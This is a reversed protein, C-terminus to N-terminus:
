EPKQDLLHRKIWTTAVAFIQEQSEYGSFVQDGGKIDIRTYAPKGYAARWRASSGILLDFEDSLLFRDGMLFLIRGRFQELGLLIAETFAGAAAGPATNTVARPGPAFRAILKRVAGQLYARPSYEFRLLKLWFSAQTLRTMYHQRSARAATVASSVCPNGAIICGGDLFKHAHILAASAADCGGWLIIRQLGPVRARFEAIAAALDAEIFRFGRFEGESDGMGRYDFRMVPIGEAALHRGLRVLQRGVGARYQPGGAVITLLGVESATRTSHLFGTLDSDECSFVFATEPGQLATRSM